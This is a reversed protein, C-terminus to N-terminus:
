RQPRFFLINESKEQTQKLAVTTSVVCNIFYFAKAGQNHLQECMPVYQAVCTETDLSTSGAYDLFAPFRSYTITPMIIVNHKEAIKSAFYEAQIQDTNNPLHLGHEKCGAGLPFVVIANNDFAQKVEPWTLQGATKSKPREQM